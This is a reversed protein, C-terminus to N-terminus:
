ELQENEYIGCTLVFQAEDMVWACPTYKIADYIYVQCTDIVNYYSSKPVSSESQCNMQVFGEATGFVCM